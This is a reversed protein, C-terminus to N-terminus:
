QNKRPRGRKGTKKPAAKTKGKELQSVREELGAVDSAVDMILDLLESKRLM